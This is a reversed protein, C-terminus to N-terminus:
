KGFFDKRVAKRVFHIIIAVVIISIGGAILFTSCAESLIGGSWADVNNLIQQLESTTM